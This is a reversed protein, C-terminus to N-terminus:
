FIRSKIQVNPHTPSNPKSCKEALACGCCAGGKPNNNKKLSRRIIWIISGLLILGVITYQIIMDIM